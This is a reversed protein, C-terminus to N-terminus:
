VENGGSAKKGSLMEHVRTTVIEALTEDSSDEHEVSQIFLAEMEPRYSKLREIWSPDTLGKGIVLLDISRSHSVVLNFISPRDHAELVLYNEHRLREVISRRVREDAEALLVTKLREM